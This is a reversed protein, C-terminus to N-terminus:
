GLWLADASWALQVHALNDVGDKMEKLAVTTPTTQGGMEGIPRRNASVVVTPSFVASPLLDALNKFDRCALLNSPSPFASVFIGSSAAERHNISCNSRVSVVRLVSLNKANTLMSRPEVQHGTPCPSSVKPQSRLDPCCSTAEVRSRSKRPRWPVSGLSLRPSRRPQLRARPQAAAPVHWHSVMNWSPRAVSLPRFVLLLWCRPRASMPGQWVLGAGVTSGM